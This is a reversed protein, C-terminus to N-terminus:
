EEAYEVPSVIDVLGIIESDTLREFNIKTLKGDVLRLVTFCADPKAQYGSHLDDLVVVGEGNYEVIIDGVKLTPHTANDLMGYVLVGSYPLEMQAVARFFAKAPAVYSKSGAFESEYQELLSLTHELAMQSTVSLKFNFGEDYLGQQMNILMPIFSGMLYCKNWKKWQQDGDQFECDGKFEEFFQTVQDDIARMQDNLRGPTNNDHAFDKLEADLKNMEVVQESLLREALKQEKEVIKNYYEDDRGFEYHNPFQVWLPSVENYAKLSTEPFDSLAMLLNAYYINVWHKFITFGSTAYSNNLASPEGLAIRLSNLNDVFHILQATAFPSSNSLDEADIGNIYLLFSHYAGIDAPISDIGSVAWYEKLYEESLEINELLDTKMDELFAASLGYNYANEYALWKKELKDNEEAITHVACAESVLQTAYQTCVDRSLYKFVGWLIGTLLLLSLLVIASVKVLKRLPVRRKSRLYRKQLREMSLDFYEISSATLAQYNCLEELGEPMPNPWAFGNLMIPIINKNHKMAHQIELRVWDDENVCRDLAEPPLVLLFDTCTEIVNYLQENFKGSRLTEMDFFVSYGASRLRTAILNATDYSSRRYSIFVDYKKAKM